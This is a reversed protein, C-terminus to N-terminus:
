HLLIARAASTPSTRSPRECESLVRTAQDVAARFARLDKGTVRIVLILHHTIAQGNPM